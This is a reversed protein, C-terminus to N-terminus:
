WWWHSQALKEFKIGVSSLSLDPDITDIYIEINNFPKSPLYTYLYDGNTLAATIVNKKKKLEEMLVKKKNEDKESDILEAYKSICEYLARHVNRRIEKADEVFIADNYAITEDFLQCTHYFADIAALQAPNFDKIFLHSYKSWSENPMLYHHEPIQIIKTNKQSEVIKTKADKFLKESSRIENLIVNAANRKNDRQQKKYIYIATSGM